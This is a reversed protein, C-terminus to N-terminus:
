ASPARGLLTELVDKTVGTFTVKDTGDTAAALTDKVANQLWAPSATLYAELDAAASRVAAIPLCNAPVFFPPEEDGSSYMPKVYDEQFGYAQGLVYVGRTPTTFTLDTVLDGTQLWVHPYSLSVGLVQSYGVCVTYPVAQLRLLRAVVAAATLASKSLNNGMMVGLAKLCMLKTEKLKVVVEPSLAAAM